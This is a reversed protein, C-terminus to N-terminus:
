SPWPLPADVPTRSNFFRFGKQAAGPTHFPICMGFWGLYGVYGATRGGRRRIVKWSSSNQLDIFGLIRHRGLHVAVKDGEANIVDAIHLGRFEPHVFNKYFYCDAPDIEVWLGAVHPTPATSIWLYGILRDGIYAGVCLDGREFASRVHQETLELIPDACWRLLEAAGVTACRVALRPSDITAGTPARVVVRALHIGARRSLASAIGAILKEPMPSM